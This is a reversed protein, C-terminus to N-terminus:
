SAVTQEQEQKESSVRAYIAALPQGEVPVVPRDGIPCGVPARDRGGSLVNSLPPEGTTSLAPRAGAVNMHQVADRYVTALAEADDPQYHRIM